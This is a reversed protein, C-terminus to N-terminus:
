KRAFPVLVRDRTMALAQFYASTLGPFSPPEDWEGSAALTMTLPAYWEYSNDAVNVLYASGVVSAKPVDTPAYSAIPRTAGIHQISVVLVHTANFESKFVSFDRNAANPQDSRKKPLEALHDFADIAKAQAGNENLQRVLMEKLVVIDDKPLTEVHDVLKSHVGSVVAICLLCNAGPFTMSPEPIDPVVVAIRTGSVGGWFNDQLAVPAQPTAACGAAIVVMAVLFWQRFGKM